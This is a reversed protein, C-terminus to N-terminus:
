VDLVIMLDAGSGVVAVVAMCPETRNPDGRLVRLQHLAEVDVSSRLPDGVEEAGHGALDLREGTGAALRVHMVQLRLIQAGQSQLGGHNGADGHCSGVLNEAAAWTPRFVM